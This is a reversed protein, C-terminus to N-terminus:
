PNTWDDIQLAHIERFDKTNRTVLLAGHRLTIAAIRLDLTGARPHAARLHDFRDSALRDFPLVRMNRYDDLHQQLYTYAALLQNKTRAKAVFALWGKSQEQYSVITTAILQDPPLQAIRARIQMGAPADDRQVLSLIDTDLIIM